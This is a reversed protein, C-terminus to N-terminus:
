LAHTWLPCRQGDLTEKSPPNQYDGSNVNMTTSRERVLACTSIRVAANARCVPATNGRLVSRPRWLPRAGLTSCHRLQLQGRSRCHPEVLGVRTRRGLGRVILCM